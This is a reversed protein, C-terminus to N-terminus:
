RMAYFLECWKIATLTHERSDTFWRNQNMIMNIKRPMCYLNDIDFNNKNGDLFVVIYDAPIKGHHQEYVYRQKPMWNMLFMKSTAKGEHYIDNYKVWIYGDYERETGIEYTKTKTKGKVFVGANVNRKIHLVKHCYSQLAVISSSRNFKKNFIETLHKFGDCNEINDKLWDKEEKTYKYSSFVRTKKQIGRRKCLSYITSKNFEVGTMESLAKAIDDYTMCDINEKIFNIEEDTYVHDAKGKSAM